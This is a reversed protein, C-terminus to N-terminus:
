RADPTRAFRNLEDRDELELRELAHTGSASWVRGGADWGVALDIPALTEAARVFAWAAGRGQQALTTAFAARTHAVCAGPVVATAREWALGGAVSVIAEAERLEDDLEIATGNPLTGAVFGERTPDHVLVPVGLAARLARARAMEQVRDSGVLATGGLLVFQRGRMVGVRELARMVGALADELEPGAHADAVLWTVLPAVFRSGLTGDAPSMAAAEVAARFDHGALSM